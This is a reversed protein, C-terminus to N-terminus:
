KTGKDLFQKAVFSGVLGTIGTILVMSYLYGLLKKCVFFVFNKPSLENTPSSDHKKTIEGLPFVAIAFM